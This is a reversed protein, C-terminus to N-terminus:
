YTPELFQDGTGLLDEVVLKRISGDLFLANTHGNHRTFDIRNDDSASPEQASGSRMPWAGQNVQGTLRAVSSLKMFEIIYIIRSPEGVLHLYRYRPDYSLNEKGDYTLPAAKNSGFAMVVGYSDAAQSPKRVKYDAPCWWVGADEYREIPFVPRKIYDELQTFLDAAPIRNGNRDVADQLRTPPFQGDNDFIYQHLAGGIQKLNAQCQTSLAAGRVKTFTSFLLASILVFVTTAVIIELLSFAQECRVYKKHFRSYKMEALSSMM